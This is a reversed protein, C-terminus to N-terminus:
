AAAFNQNWFGASETAGDAVIGVKLVDAPTTNITQASYNGGGISAAIAPVQSEAAAKKSLLYVGVGLLGFMLLLQQKKM